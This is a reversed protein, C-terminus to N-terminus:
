KESEEPLEPLPGIPYWRVIDGNYRFWLGHPEYNWYAESWQNYQVIEVNDDCDRLWVWEGEPPFVKEPDYGDRYPKLEAVEAELEAIRARLGDEIPRTNWREVSVTNEQLLCGLTSCSVNVGRLVTPMAGCLPCPRLENENM